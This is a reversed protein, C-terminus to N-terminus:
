WPKHQREKFIAMNREQLQKYEPFLTKFTTRHAHEVIVNTALGLRYGARRARFCYDDDDGFGVGYAESLYGIDQIVRRRIYACFFALM